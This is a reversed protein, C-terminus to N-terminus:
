KAISRLGFKEDRPRLYSIYIFLYIHPYRRGQCLTSLAATASSLIYIYTFSDFLVYRNKTVRLKAGLREDSLVKNM